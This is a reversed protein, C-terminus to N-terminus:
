KKAALIDDVMQAVAKAYVSEKSLPESGVALARFRALAVVAAANKTKSDVAAM